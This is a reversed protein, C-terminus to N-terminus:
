LFGEESGTMELGTSVEGGGFCISSEGEGGFWADGGRGMSDGGRGTRGEEKEPVESGGMVSREGDCM